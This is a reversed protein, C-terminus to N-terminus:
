RPDAHTGGRTMDGASVTTPPGSLHVVVTGAAKDHLAQRLPRDILIFLCDLVQLLFGVGYCPWLLTPLGLRGWRTFARGFGLRDASEMRMVKIGVLRKGMTQGTNASGPVEYAFWVAAAVFCMMVLLSYVSAPTEPVTSGARQARLVDRWYPLVAQWWQYAFWANAVVCLGAIAALDIARAALRRGPGALLLGHPRPPPMAQRPRYGPPPPYGPPVGPPPYGPPYGPPPTPHGSASPDGQANPGPPAANGPAVPYGPPPYGAPPYGPPPYAPPPRDGQAADPPGDGAPGGVPVHAHAGGPGGSGVPAVTPEPAVPAAPPPGDPPTADAPIPEGLYGEGDWYRQTTPDVPDKYWGPAIDSM